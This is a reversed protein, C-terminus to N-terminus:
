LWFSSKAYEYIRHFALWPIPRWGASTKAYGEVGHRFHESADNLIAKAVFVNKGNILEASGAVSEITYSFPHSPDAASAFQGQMGAAIHRANSEPVRIELEFADMPAFSLIKEGQPLVQGLKQRLEADVVMGDDPATITCLSIKKDIADLEAQLASAEANALSAAAPDGDALAARVDVTAQGRRSALSARELELQRTDFRALVQGKGVREGSEVLVESLQMDFPALTQTMNAPVIACPTLPRFPLWGFLFFILGALLAIRTIKGIRTQPKRVVQLASSASAKAHETLSRSGRQSLEVAPGFPRILQELETLEAESFGVDADRRLSVVGVCDEGAMMPFSCVASRTSNAWQTHVPMPNHKSTEGHPQYAVLCGADLAEEMAQQIDVVGPSSAKFTDKGSIAQITIHEGNRLGCSVQECQFRQALSNVLAFAFERPGSYRSTRVALEVERHQEAAAKTAAGMSKAGGGAQASEDQRIEASTSQTFRECAALMQYVATSLRATRNEVSETSKSDVIAFSVTGVLEQLTREFGYTVLTLTHSAVNQDPSLFAGQEGRCSLLTRNLLSRLEEKESDAFEPVAAFDLIANAGIRGRFGFGVVRHAKCIERFSRRLYLEMTECTLALELIAAGGDEIAEISQSACAVADTMENASNASAEVPTSEQEPEAHVVESDGVSKGGDQPESETAPAALGPIVFTSEMSFPGNFGSVDPQKNM